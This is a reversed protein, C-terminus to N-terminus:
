SSFFLDGQKNVAVLILEEALMFEESTVDHDLQILSLAQAVTPMPHAINSHGSTDQNIWSTIMLNRGSAPIADWIPKIDDVLCRARLSGIKRRYQDENIEDPVSIKGQDIAWAALLYPVYGHGAAKLRSYQPQPLLGVYSDNLAQRQMAEERLFEVDNKLQKITEKTNKLRVSYFDQHKIALGPGDAGDDFDYSSIPSSVQRALNM